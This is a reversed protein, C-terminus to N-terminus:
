TELRTAGLRICLLAVDDAGDPSTAAIISECAIQMPASRDIGAAAARLRELGIDISERPREILGDTYLVLISGSLVDISVPTRVDDIGIGILPDPKVPVFRATGDPLALVPALHGANAITVRWEPVGPSGSSSPPDIVVYQCTALRGGLIHPAMEDLRHLIDAPDRDDFAFCRVAVLVRSMAAAADMNHGTVDGITAAFRGRPLHFVDYWDGGIETGQVAPHYIAALEVDHVDPMASLLHRQLAIANAREREFARANSLASGARRGIDRALAIDIDSFAHTESCVLLMVGLVEDPSSIPVVLAGRTGSPDSHGPNDPALAHRMAEASAADALVYPQTRDLVTAIDVLGVVAEPKADSPDVETTLVPTSTRRVLRTPVGGNSSLLIAARDALQPVVIELLGVLLAEADLTEQLVLSTDAVLQLRATARAAVTTAIRAQLASSAGAALDSLNQRDAPTWARQRVNIACLSGLVQGNGDTLPAGLYSEVGLVTHSGHETWRPEASAHDIQVIDNSEVVLRCVSQELPTERVSSLPDPLGHQGPFFQRHDDVLSVLGVQAGLLRAVLEALRDMTADPDASLGTAAVADLRELESM